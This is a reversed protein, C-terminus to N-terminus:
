HDNPARNETHLISLKTSTCDNTLLVSKGSTMLECFHLPLVQQNFQPLKKKAAIVYVPHRRAAHIFAKTSIFWGTAAPTTAGFYLDKSTSDVLLVRKKLYFLISSFKEYDQYLYLPRQPAKTLILQSMAMESRATQMVRKDAVYFLVWPSMLSAILLFQVIAINRFRYAIAVVLVLLTLLLLLSRYTFIQSFVVNYHFFSALNPKYLIFFVFILFLLSIASFLAVNLVLLKNNNNKFLEDIKIGLLLALAPIGIIIYYAAKAQSLSFFIFPVLFWIWLFKQLRTINPDPNIQKKIVTTLLLTWPLMIGLLPLLYFYWPGTHYDHPVRHNFFRLVQENIFFDWTFNPQKFGAAILWPFIILFFCAMGVIDVLKFIKKWPTKNLFLFLIVIAAILVLSLLGKTLFALSLCAYACWLYIRQETVTWLYFTLLSGSFMATLLMDFILVRGIIIFGISTALVISAIWGAKALNLAKSFLFIALCIFAAASVPVLRAAFTTVGFFHYNLAILWYLLPPKELYPVFNLHPIIYNGTVLMERAIEAYLGENMNEIAYSAFGYYFSFFIILFLIFYELLSIHPDSNIKILYNYIKKM